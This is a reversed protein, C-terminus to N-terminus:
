GREAEVWKDFLRMGRRRQEDVVGQLFRRVGPLAQRLETIAGWHSKMLDVRGRNAALAVQNVNVGIKRLEGQVEELRAAVLPDFELIGSSARVLARLADSNSTFDHRVKLRELAEAEPASLRVAVAKGRTASVGRTIRKGAKLRDITRRSVNFAEAVTQITDGEMLQQLALDREVATLKKM